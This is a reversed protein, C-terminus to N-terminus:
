RDRGDDGGCLSDIAAEGSSSSPIIICVEFRGGMAMGGGLAEELDTACEGRVVLRFMNDVSSVSDRRLFRRQSRCCFDCVTLAKKFLLRFACDM